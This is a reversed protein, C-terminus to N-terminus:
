KKFTVTLKHMKALDTSTPLAPLVVSSASIFASIVFLVTQVLPVFPATVPIFSLITSIGASIQAITSTSNSVNFTPSTIQSALDGFAKVATNLSTLVTGAIVGTATLESVFTPLESNLISVWSQVNSLTPVSTNSSPTVGCAVLLGAVGFLPVTKSLERRTLTM